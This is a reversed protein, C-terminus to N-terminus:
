TNVADTIKGIANPNVELTFDILMMKKESDGSKAIEDTRFNDLVSVAVHDMDVVLITRDRQIRNPVIQVTGFNGVYWDAGAIITAREKGTNQKYQTAIGTFGSVINKNYPGVFVHGPDGGQTWVASLIAKLHAETFTGTVTGDTLATVTGGSFGPTTGTTAGTTTKTVSCWSELGASSPATGSGGASSGQAGVLAYEVDKRLEMGLKMLQYAMESKRGAKKIINARRSVAPYKGSIQCYNGYRTTATFAAASFDDGDIQRNTGANALSDVQWEHYSNTATTKKAITYFPTEDTRLMNIAEILDERKGVIDLGDTLNSPQAM